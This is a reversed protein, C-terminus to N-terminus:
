LLSILVKTCQVFLLRGWVPQPMAFALQVSAARSLKRTREVLPLQSSVGAGHVFSLMYTPLAGHQEQGVTSMLSLLQVCLM